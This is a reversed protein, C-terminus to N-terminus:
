GAAKGIKKNDAGIFMTYDDGMVARDLVIVPIKAKYAESVPRTLPAAEKPSVIILDVKQQVFEDIQGAQTLSNNQADKNLLTFEPHAKAAKAVDANMQVRWPENLNCQSMGIVFKSKAAPQQATAQAPGFAATGAVLGSFLLIKTLKM